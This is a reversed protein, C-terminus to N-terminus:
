MKKDKKNKGNEIKFTIPSMNNFCRATLLFM